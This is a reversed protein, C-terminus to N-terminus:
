DRQVNKRRYYKPNGFRNVTQDKTWYEDSEFVHRNEPILFREEINVYYLFDKEEPTEILTQDKISYLGGDHVKHAASLLGEPRISSTVIFKSFRAPGTRIAMLVGYQAPPIVIFVQCKFDGFKKTSVTLKKMRLGSATVTGVSSLPCYEMHSVYEEKEFLNTGIDFKPICVIDIDGCSSSKRRISGALEIRTCFGSMVDLVPQAIESMQKYDVRM